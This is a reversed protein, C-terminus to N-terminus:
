KMIKDFADRKEKPLVAKEKWKQTGYVGARTYDFTVFGTERLVKGNSFRFDNHVPDKFGPDRIVSHRDHGTKRRWASLDMTLFSVNGRTNWYINHDMTIKVKDWPGGLLVGQDYYVINNTFFFSRHDEVRTCQLQYMSAFAFINNRIINEEGYHQHFGGTKTKYVLNNEMLIHSSGEDPYLGWGGYSYSWVHDIVNHSVSTGESRGLTYVGGMDSLVGWGLHHIHNYNIKNRKAPSYAYGWVWGVSVGTYRFDGIDNHLVKDDSSQGIWVGVAPPFLYGGSQIINNELLINRTILMTDEPIKVTGIRIGGAGLDHIHCHEVQCDSCAERFWVGYNGTHAIECDKLIINRAGDVQVTADITAAAQAPEFGAPPLYYASYMFRLGEFRINKVYKGHEPDGKIIIMRTLAPAIVEADEPREGPRPIYTLQGSDDLFWEGPETLAGAYNELRYRTGTKWRNWPKMGEGSTFIVSDNIGDAYRKTINWKHYVTMVVEKLENVSLSSLEGLSEPDALIVQQAREPARGSGQVWVNEKVGKMVFFGTDPSHAREARRGNVYLQEFKKRSNKIDPIDAVWYGQENKRINKIRIGGSFVPKNGDGACYIVPYLDTGSDEPWLVLPEKMRYNGDQVIVHITDGPPKEKRLERLRDRVGQLSALPHDYSGSANDKGNPAIYLTQSHGSSNIILGVLMFFLFCFSNQKM